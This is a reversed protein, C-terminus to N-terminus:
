KPSFLLPMICPCCLQLSFISLLTGVTPRAEGMRGRGCQELSRQKQQILLNSLQVFMVTQKLFFSLTCRRIIFLLAPRTIAVLTPWTWIVLSAQLSSAFSLDLQSKLNVIWLWRWHSVCGPVPAGVTYSLSPPLPSHRLKFLAGLSHSGPGQKMCSKRVWRKGCCHDLTRCRCWIWALRSGTSILIPDKWDLYLHRNNMQWEWKGVGLCNGM